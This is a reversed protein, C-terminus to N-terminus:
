IKQWASRRASRKVKLIPKRQASIQAASRWLGAKFEFLKNM